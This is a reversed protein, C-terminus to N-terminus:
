DHDDDAVHHREEAQFEEAHGAVHGGEVQRRPHPLLEPDAQLFRAPEKIRSPCKTLRRSTPDGPKAVMPGPRASRPAADLHEGWGASSGEEPADSM